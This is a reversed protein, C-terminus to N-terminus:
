HFALMFDDEYKQAKAATYDFRSKKLEDLNFVEYIGSYDLNKKARTVAVYILNLEAQQMDKSIHFDDYLRVNDWELGKAKHATTITISDPSKNMSQSLLDSLKDVGFKDIINIFQLLEKDENERAYSTLEGVNSFATLIPHSFKTNTQLAKYASLFDKIETVNTTLTCKINLQMYDLFAQLCGANSRCIVADVKPLTGIKSIGDTSGNGYLQRPCELLKLVKNAVTEINNGFRFSKTLYSVDGKMLDMANVAGRWQYISQYEDGVLITQTNNNNEIIQLTAENTDQAEDLLIYDIGPIKKGSLAYLKLYVDHTIKIDNNEYILDSWYTEACNVIELAIENLVQKSFNLKKIWDLYIVHSKDISYSNSNCFKNVTKIVMTMKHVPSITKTILKGEITVKGSSFKLNYKMSLHYPSISPLRLKDLLKKDTYSYALSHVTKCITSTDMKSKMEDAIAKNYALYIGVKNDKALENSIMALTTSKTAGAFAKILLNKGTKAKDIADQQELTRTFM